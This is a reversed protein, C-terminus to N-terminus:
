SVVEGDPTVLVPRGDREALVVDGQGIFKVAKVLRVREGATLERTSRTAGASVVEALQHRQEEGIGAADLMGYQGGTLSGLPEDSVRGSADADTAEDATRPELGSEAVKAASRGNRKPGKASTAQQMSVQEAVSPLARLPADDPVPTFPVGRDPTRAAVEAVTAGALEGGGSQTHGDGLAGATARAIEALPLKVDLVPVAFDRRPQGPRTVSRKDLRLAAPLLRGRGAATQILEVSAALEVAGYYGHVEIRWLGAGQVQALMLSLRTTPKCDRESPDPDCVCPQDQLLERAGDCRRQCGGGSWQEFWQSFAMDTPPVIVDIVDTDTTVQWQSAPGNQWPEIAGGYLHAVHEIKSRDGSTFRFTSLKKPRGGDVREGIRIRGAEHLRRQLTLIPM